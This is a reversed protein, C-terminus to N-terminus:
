HKGKKVIESLVNEDRWNTIDNKYYSKSQAHTSKPKNNINNTLCGVDKKKIFQNHKNQQGILKTEWAILIRKIIFRKYGKTGM